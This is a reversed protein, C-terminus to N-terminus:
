FISQQARSVTFGHGADNSCTMGSTASNCTFPGLSVSRDYGLEMAGPDAVTDGHCLLYGKPDGAGIGFSNGWDLECDAPRKTFSPTMARLDCRAEDSAGIEDSTGIFIACDINGSPSRFVLYDDALAPSALVALLVIATKFM